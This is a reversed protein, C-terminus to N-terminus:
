CHAGYHVAARRELGVHEPVVVQQWPDAGVVQPAALVLQPLREPGGRRGGPVELLEGKASIEV